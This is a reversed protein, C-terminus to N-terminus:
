LRGREMEMEMEVQAGASDGSSEAARSGVQSEIKMKAKTLAHLLRRLQQGVAGPTRYDDHEADRKVQFAELSQVSALGGVTIHGAGWGRRRRYNELSDLNILPESMPYLDPIADLCTRVSVYYSTPM